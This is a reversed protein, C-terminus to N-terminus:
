RGRGGTKPFFVERLNIAELLGQIRGQHRATELEDKENVVNAYHVALKERLGRSVLQWGPHQFFDRLVQSDEPALQHDLLGSGQQLDELSNWNSRNDM